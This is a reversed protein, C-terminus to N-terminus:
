SGLFFFPGAGRNSKKAQIYINEIDVDGWLM